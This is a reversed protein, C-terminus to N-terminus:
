LIHHGQTQQCTQCIASQSDQTVRPKKSKNTKHWAHKEFISTYPMKPPLAATANVAHRLVSKSTTLTSTMMMSSKNITMPDMMHTTMKRISKTKGSAKATITSHRSTTMCNTASNKSSAMIRPWNTTSNHTRTSTCRELQSSLTSCYLQNAIWMQTHRSSSSICPYRSYAGSPEIQRNTRTLLNGMPKDWLTNQNATDKTPTRGLNAIDRTRFPEIITNMPNRPHEILATETSNRTHDAIQGPPICTLPVIPHAHSM